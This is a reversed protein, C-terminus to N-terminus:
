PGDFSRVTGGAPPSHKPGGVLISTGRFSVARGFESASTGSAPLTLRDHMSWTSGSLSFVAASGRKVVGGVTDFPSGAVLAAGDARLSVSRGFNEGAIRDPPTLTTGSWTWGSLSWVVVSGCDTGGGAIDALPAGSAVRNGTADVTVSTGLGANAIATPAIVRAVSSVTGTSTLLHIYVAGCNTKGTEDDGPCGVVLTPSSVSGGLAVAQGFFDTAAGGSAVVSAALTWSGGVRRFVLVEGADAKGSV